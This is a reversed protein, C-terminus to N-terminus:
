PPPEATALEMQQHLGEFAVSIEPPFFDLLYVKFDRSELIDPLASKSLFNVETETDYVVSEKRQLNGPNRSKRPNKWAEHEMQIEVSGARSGDGEGEKM